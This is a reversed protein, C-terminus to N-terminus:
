PWQGYAKLSSDDIDVIALAPHPVGEEEMSTLLSDYIKRDMHQLLAPQTIFLALIISSLLMGVLLALLVRRWIGHKTTM